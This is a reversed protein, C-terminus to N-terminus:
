PTAEPPTPLHILGTGDPNVAVFSHTRPLPCGPVPCGEDLVVAAHPVVTRIARDPRGAAEWRAVAAEHARRRRRNAGSLRAWLGPAYLPEPPRGSVRRTWEVRTGGVAPMTDDGFFLALADRNVETFEAQLTTPQEFLDRPRYTRDDDDSM